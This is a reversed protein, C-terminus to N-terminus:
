APRWRVIRFDDVFAQLEPLAESMAAELKEQADEFYQEMAVELRADLAGKWENLSPPLPLSFGGEQWGMGLLPRDPYPQGAYFGFRRNRPDVIICGRGLSTEFFARRVGYGVKYITGYGLVAKFM